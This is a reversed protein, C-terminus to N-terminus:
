TKEFGELLKLFCLFYGGAVIFSGVSTPLKTTAPPYKRQKKFSNSNFVVYYIQNKNANRLKLPVYWPHTKSLKATSKRVTELCNEPPTWKGNTRLPEYGNRTKRPPSLPHKSSFTSTSRSTRPTSRSIRSTDQLGPPPDPLGPSPDSTRSARYRTVHCGGKRIRLAIAHLM